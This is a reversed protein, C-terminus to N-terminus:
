APRTGVPAGVHTEAWLQLAFLNWLGQTRDLGHELHRDAYERVAPRCFLGEPFPDREVVLERVRSALERRLWRGVPVDFGRKEVPITGPPVFRGLALRLPVKGAGGSMCSFPDVRAAVELLELDLLPVRVELGWYMSARDVKTLLTQLHGRLETRRLWQAVGDGDSPVPVEYLDFEDPLPGAGPCLRELDPTTFASHADRYWSGFSDALLGSAPRRGPRLRAGAYLLRRVPRPRRLHRHLRLASRFRPYGFFLEDGGDGGLAVKVRERAVSSVLMTPLASHDGFPESYAAAMPGVLSLADRGDFVRLEHALGLQSAYRSAAASEDFSPDTCGVTFAPLPGGTSAARLHAAVLPSDVGGSLFTGVPVDSVSQRRVAEGVAAAVAEVAEDAPLYPPGPEPLHRFEAREMSRGPRARLWTGPEVQHTGSVLGFPAPVHGFRLYLGLTEPRVEFSECFPHRLLQDYQSGFVVGQRGAMYYLPKVGVPDRAMLLAHARVDYWALAFMGNFRALASPGWAVLAQLVVETDSSSRFSVGREELLRRLERYNYVEGNFVLVHNGDETLMPQHGGPTPDIVALRRFGLAAHRGDTWVGRDDPGRRVMLDVLGNLVEGDRAVLPRHTLMGVIGCM